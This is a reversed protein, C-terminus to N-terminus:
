APAVRRLPFATAHWTAGAPQEFVGARLAGVRHVGLDFVPTSADVAGEGALRRFAARGAARLTGDPQRYLIHLPSLWAFGLRQALAEVLRASQDIGCGSLDGGPVHAALLLLRGECLAYAGKVRRGHSKWAVLLDDLANALSERVPPSLARDTAFAWLAAEDPLSPFLAAYDPMSVTTM